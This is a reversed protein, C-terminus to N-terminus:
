SAMKPVQLLTSSANDLVHNVYCTKNHVTTSHWEACWFIYALATAKKALRAVRSVAQILSEAGEKEFAAGRFLDGGGEAVGDAVEVDEAM